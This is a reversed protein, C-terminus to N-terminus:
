QRAGTQMSTPKPFCVTFTTGRNTTRVIEGNLQDVMTNVLQLGFSTTNRFDIDTPFGAGDDAVTLVNAGGERRLSVRLRGELANAFAHKFCNSILENLLLGCPIAIDIALPPIDVDLELRIGESVRYTRHLDDALQRVYEGFNVRAMDQSRYLREHILAMSKVRGRSEKFMDRAAQDTTHGSQLDLLTSVIQLNNKVRHHIEKLLVEKERLSTKIQEEIVKRQTIVQTFMIIGGVEGEANRWPRCEWQLWETPGDVREFPDEERREVAGALVRQHIAKWQESIDPFVQYHSLGVVDQGSLHYDILWRDSTQIYNMDRDFMAIAAPSHKIFQRLLADQAMLAKEDEKQQSIDKIQTVFYLPQGSGDRVLSVSLLIYVVHGQKHFYRKEMQYAQMKGDIVQQVSDLDADLDDPHTLTQFNTALLEQETYGVLECLLRNVQLWRGDPAVLAMGIPAFDFASRFREESERLEAETRKLDDIDTCTGFWKLINDAADKLPVGRILWWRYVGDARRLRCELSYTSDTTTAKQWALWARQQDEPHFPKNWGHGLSEELTLGTYNMWQQNFFINWGDPRTMWVIQPVAEALMRFEAESARLAAEAKIRDTVDMTAVVGAMIRGDAGKVPAASNIVFRRDGLGFREIEMLEGPCVEGTLLARSLAWEHAQVRQGSAPWYGVWEGYEDISGAMFPNLGWVQDCARNLRVLRGNPEAIIVAVPMAELIADLLRRETEATAKGEAVRRELTANLEKLEQEARKLETTDRIVGIMRVPRGAQDYIFRGLAEVWVTAGDDVRIVRYQASYAKASERAAEIAQLVRDLDEPHIRDGWHAFAVVGDASPVYGLIRFHGESWTIRGTPLDWDWTGMGAVDLALTLREESNRLNAEIKKSATIDYNIGDFRGSTGDVSSNPRGMSRIWRIEGDAPNVARHDIAYLTQDRLAVEVALRTPERDEPHLVSWFWEVTPAVGPPLFFLERTREDWDLHALPLPNLWLGVGTERLVMALRERNLRLEAQAQRRESDDRFVVVIGVPMDNEILPAASYVVPFFAGDKRIFVDEHNILPTRKQLVQLVACDSAPFPSGDPHHHHTMDHLKRGMLDEASWGVFREAAPNMYTVLGQNDVAYLGEGMNDMTTRNLEQSRRLSADSERLSETQQRLEEEAQGRVAFEEKLAANAQALEATREMVRRELDSHARHLDAEARRREAIERELEEPSRMALAKPVVPFLAIVTAWSAVATMAKMLGLLRYLPSYFMVVELFHTFGCTLIFAILLFYVARFPVGKRRRAIALLVLPIALYALSILADSVNHLWVL